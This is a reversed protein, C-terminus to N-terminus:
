AAADCATLIEQAGQEDLMTAVQQGLKVADVAAGQARARLLTQGDLSAVLGSLELTKDDIYHAYGAIPTHCSGGLATLMAREAEAQIFSPKHNIAQTAKLALENSESCQLCVIGQTVAPLMIDAEFVDTVRHDLGIRKLGSYALIAADVEKNDVKGVRTDANGRLPVIKLYPFAAKMQSARRVSSTGVKAGKKLTALSEGDRCVVADRADNRELAASIILGELMDEDCPVDKYSHMAIDADDELLAIELAKVFAGKGGIKKLDGKFREYCGDSVIPVIEFEIDPNKAKMLKIALETQVMAMKSKRTAIRLKQSM